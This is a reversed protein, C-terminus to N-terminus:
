DERLVDAPEVGIVRRAPLVAAALGMVLAVLTVQAFLVPDARYMPDLNLSAAIVQDLGIGLLRSFAIALASGLLAVLLADVVVMGVLTRAPVGIARLTAFEGRRESVSRLLMSVVFVGAVFLAMGGILSWIVMSEGVLDDLKKTVGIRDWVDVSDLEDRLRQSAAAPADTDILIYSVRDGIDTLDRLTQLSVFASGDGAMGVGRLQGIGVVRLRRSELEVTDGIALRKERALKRGLVVEDDRSLWRGARMDLADAVALPDGDVGFALFREVLLGRTPGERSRRLPWAAVGIAQRVEPMARAQALRHRADALTGPGEGPLVPILTGGRRVVYLDVGSVIFNGTYLWLSGQVMGMITMVMALAVGVAGVMGLM